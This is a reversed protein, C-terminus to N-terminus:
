GDPRGVLGWRDGQGLAGAPSCYPCAPKATLAPTTTLGVDLRLVQARARVPIGTIAALMMTVAASAASMNISIVAPQSIHAGTIYPDAQRAAESLLDVRVQEPDLAEACLLCPLGPSLMQVRGAIRVQGGPLVNIAVGLDIGPMLYQAAFQSLIARSGHSDTCCFFFDTDLLTRVVSSKTIDAQLEQVDIGPQIQRVMEAAVTVKPRGIQSATAGVVRNLNTPELTDPDYLRLDHIGLHALQQAVLSGTGGLGIVAFRAHQLRRQGEEGFALVQRAYTSADSEPGQATLFTLSSDVRQVDLPSETGDPLFLRAHVGGPALILRGHPVDPSHYRLRPLLLAEGDLDQRSPGPVGKPHSHAWLVTQGTQRAQTFVEAVFAPALELRDITRILYAEEPPTLVESVLLRWLGAPTRIAEAFVVSAAERAPDQQLVGQLLDWHMATFILTQRGPRDTTM